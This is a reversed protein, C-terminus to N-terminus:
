KGHALDLLLNRLIAYAAADETFQDAVKLQTWVYRGRGVAGQAAVTAFRTRKRTGGRWHFRPDAGVILSHTADLEDFYSTYAVGEQGWYGFDRFYLDDFLAHDDPVLPSSLCHRQATIPSDRSQNIWSVEVGWWPDRTGLPQELILLRGGRRLWADLAQFRPTDEKPFVGPAVVAFRATNTETFPEAPLKMAAALAAATGESNDVLAVAGMRQLPYTKRLVLTHDYLNEAVVRDDPTRLRLYMDYQGTAFGPPVTFVTDFDTIVGEGPVAGIDRRHVEKDHMGITFILHPYSTPTHNAVCFRVKKPQGAFAHVEGVGKIMVQLPSQAYHLMRSIVGDYHEANRERSNPKLTNLTVNMSVFGQIRPLDYRIREYHKKKWFARERDALISDFLCKLGCQGPLVNLRLRAQASAKHDNVYHLAALTDAGPRRYDYREPIPVISKMSSDPYVAWGLEGNIIPLESSDKFYHQVRDMNKRYQVPFDLLNLGGYASHTHFDLYTPHFDPVGQTRDTPWFTGSGPAVLTGTYGIRTMVRMVDRTFREVEITGKNENGMSLMRVCAFARCRNLWKAIYTDYLPLFREGDKSLSQGFKGEGAEFDIQGQYEGAATSVEGATWEDSVIMGEEEYLALHWPPASGTHIRHHNLGAGKMGRVFRRGSNGANYFLADLCGPGGEYGYAGGIQEWEGFLYVYRGNLFFKGDHSEMGAIGFRRLGLLGGAEDEIRLAYLCPNEPSWLAAGPLDLVNRWHGDAAAFPVRFTKKAGAFRYDKSEWPEIVIRGRASTAGDLRFAVDIGPRRYDPNIVIDTAFVDQRFELYVPADIGAPMARKTHAPFGPSYVRVCVVNDVDGFHLLGAPIEREFDNLWAGHVRQFTSDSLNFHDRGLRVGNVWVRAGVDVNLFRIFCRRGRLAAPVLFHRRYYGIGGFYYGPSAGGKAGEIPVALRRREGPTEWPLPRNWSGPVPMDMWAEDAREPAYWKQRLGADNEFTRARLAGRHEKKLVYTPGRRNTVRAKEKLFARTVANTSWQLKWVGDLYIRDKKGYFLDWYRPSVTRDKEHAIREAVTVRLKGAASGACLAAGLATVILSRRV